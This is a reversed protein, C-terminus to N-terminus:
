FKGRFGLGKRNKIKRKGRGSPLSKSLTLDYGLADCDSGCSFYNIEM